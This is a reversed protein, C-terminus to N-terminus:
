SIGHASGVDTLVIREVGKIMKNQESRRTQVTKLRKGRKTYGHTNEGEPQHLPHFM